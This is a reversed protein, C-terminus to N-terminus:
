VCCRAVRPSLRPFVFQRCQLHWVSGVSFISADAPVQSQDSEMYGESVVRLVKFFKVAAQKANRAVFLCAM